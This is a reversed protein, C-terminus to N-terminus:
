QIFSTDQEYIRHAVHIILLRNKEMIQIEGCRIFFM